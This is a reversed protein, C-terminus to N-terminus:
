LDLSRLHRFSANSINLLCGVQRLHIKSVEFIYKIYKQQRPVSPNPDSRQYSATVSKKLIFIDTYLSIRIVKISGASITRHEHATMNEALPVIMIHERVCIFSFDIASVDCGNLRVELTGRDRRRDLVTSRHEMNYTRRTRRPVDGTSSARCLERPHSRSIRISTACVCQCVVFVYYM